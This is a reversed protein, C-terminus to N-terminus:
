SHIARRAYIRYHCPVDMSATVLSDCRLGNSGRAFKRRAAGVASAIEESRNGANGRQALKHRAYRARQSILGAVCGFISHRGEERGELTRRTQSQGRSFGDM